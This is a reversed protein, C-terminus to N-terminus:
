RGPMEFRDLLEGSLLHWSLGIQRLRHFPTEYLPEIPMDPDEGLVALALQKGMMTAMAIGRGNYGMGALVGKAPQMLHPANDWTMAVYGGWHYEWEVDGLQPFLASAVGLVHRDNGMEAADFLNGRGGIVFRGQADMRYYVQVRRTESVAHLGPLVSRRLNDGLPHTAAIFSAAPVIARELGPWLESTYGNTCLLVHQSALSADRTHTVLSQGRREIARVPSHAHISAGARLAARALGRAYALPQINGGRRDLLGSDYADNGILEGIENKGLLRAPEDWPSWERVWHEQATRGRKAFAGQIYGPRVVACAIDHAEILDFVLECTADAMNAVRRGRGKGYRAYMQSPLIKWGPNVQGGNRGSAGWGPEAAELVRVSRGEQALHLAASLGTFGGGIVAVEAEEDHELAACEPGPPATAAWLSPPWDM